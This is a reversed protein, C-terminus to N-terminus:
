TLLLSATNRPWRRSFSGSLPQTLAPFTWFTYQNAHSAGLSAGLHLRPTASVSMGASGGYDRATFQQGTNYRRIDAFGSAGVGV